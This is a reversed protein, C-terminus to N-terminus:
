KCLWKKYEERTMTKQAQDPQQKKWRNYCTRLCAKWNRARTKGIMWDKAEYHNWASKADLEPWSKDVESAYAVWETETPPTFRAKEIKNSRGNKVEQKTNPLQEPTTRSNDVSNDVIQYQDWNLITFVSGVPSSQQGIQQDSKMVGILRNIKSEHIGTAKSMQKRGSIFQGPELTFTKATKGIRARRESRTARCLMWVWLAVWHPDSAFPHDTISRHIKIWGSSM